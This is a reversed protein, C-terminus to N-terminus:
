PNGVTIPHEQYHNDTASEPDPDTAHTIILKIKEDLEEAAAALMILEERTEIFGDMKLLNMLGLISAVPRRLEHAQIFAIEKLSDKQAVVVAKNIVNQTTDTSNVSVGIIVGEPDFAPEFKIMRWTDGDVTRVQREDFVATGTMAKVYAKYFFLLNEPLLYDAMGKGRTLTKGYNHTVYSAWAQNFALVEFNLGLLLHSDITSEFFSRHEIASRRAEDYQQKLLQVSVEFDLLQMAQKALGQLMDKQLETLQGPVQDIVCLSGLHYGDSTTLPSGAYFRINPDGTVLPNNLFRQDLQADPVVMVEDGQIVQNCFADHRTTQEYAFAQKFKIYQTDEDIFTILATPTGCVKAALQIIHELEKEKSIELNLFRKVAQIRNEENQPM